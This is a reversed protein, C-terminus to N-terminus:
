DGPRAGAAEMLWDGLAPRYHAVGELIGAAYCGNMGLWGGVACYLRETQGTAAATARAAERVEGTANAVLIGPIESALVALDNGSDGAFVCDTTAIGLRAILYRLAGLKSAEPPVVDLLGQAATEDVSWILDATIGQVDLREQVAAVIREGADAPAYYSLKFPAQKEAEQLTLESLGALAPRLDDGTRSQWRGALIRHWGEDEQWTDGKGDLVRTGVDTVLYDPSPLEYEAMAERILAPHRGTVYVLRVDLRAGLQTFLPRALPSEPQLGNPLLTRDLDTALLLM